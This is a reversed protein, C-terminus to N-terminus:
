AFNLNKLSKCFFEDFQHRDIEQSNGDKVLDKFIRAMRAAILDLGKHLM